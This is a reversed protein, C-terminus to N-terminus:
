NTENFSSEAYGLLMSSSLILATSVPSSGGPKGLGGTTISSLVCFEDHHLSSESPLVAHEPLLCVGGLFFKCSTSGGLETVMSGVDVDYEDKDIFVREETVISQVAALM